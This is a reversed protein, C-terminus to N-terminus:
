TLQGRAHVSCVAETGGPQLRSKKVLTHACAGRGTHQVTATQFRAVAFRIGSPLRLRFTRKLWLFSDLSKLPM